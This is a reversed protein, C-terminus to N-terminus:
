SLTRVGAFIGSLVIRTIHVAKTIGVSTFALLMAAIAVILSAFTYGAAYNIHFINGSYSLTLGNNGIFHMSWIAVAGMVFASALLM